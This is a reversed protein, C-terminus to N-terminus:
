AGVPLLVEVVEFLLVEARAEPEPTDSLLGNLLPAPWSTAILDQFRANEINMANLANM